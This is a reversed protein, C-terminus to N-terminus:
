GGLKKGGWAHECRASIKTLGAHIRECSARARSPKELHVKKKLLANGKARSEQNMQAEEGLRRAFCAGRELDRTGAASLGYSTASAVKLAEEDGRVEIIPVVAGFLEEQAISMDNTANVFVHPPLVLGQPDGGLVQRAGEARKTGAGENEASTVIGFAERGLCASPRRM